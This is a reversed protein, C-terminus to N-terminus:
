RIFMTVVFVGGENEITGLLQAIDEPLVCIQVNGIVVSMSPSTTIILKVVFHRYETDVAEPTTEIDGVIELMPVQRTVRLRNSPILLTGQRMLMTVDAGADEIFVLLLILTIAELKDFM